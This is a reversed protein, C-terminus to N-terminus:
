GSSLRPLSPASKCASYPGEAGARRVHTVTRIAGPVHSAQDGFSMKRRGTSRPVRPRPGATFGDIFGTKATIELLLDPLDADPLHRDVQDRLALLSPPEPLADFQEVPLRGNALEHVPHEAHLGELTRRYAADLEAGLRELVPEPTEPLSLSRYVDSRSANRAPADLLSARSDGYRRKPRRLRRPPAPRRAAGGARM